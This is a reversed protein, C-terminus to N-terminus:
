LVHSLFQFPFWEMDNCHTVMYGSVSELLGVCAHCMFCTPLCVFAGRPSMDLTTLVLGFFLHLFLGLHKGFCVLWLDFFLGSAEGSATLALYLDLYFYTTIPSCHLDTMDAAMNVGSENECIRSRFGLPPKLWISTQPIVSPKGLNCWHSVLGDVIRCALPITVWVMTLNSHSTPGAPVLCWRDKFM